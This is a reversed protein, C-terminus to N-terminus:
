LGEISFSYAGSGDTTGSGLTDGQANKVVITEGAAVPSIGGSVVIDQGFHVTTPSADLTVTGPAAMAIAPFALVSVVVFCLMWLLRSRDSM